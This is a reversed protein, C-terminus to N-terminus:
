RIPVAGAIYPKMMRLAVASLLGRMQALKSTDFKYQLGTGSVRVEGVGHEQHETITKYESSTGYHELLALAEECTADKVVQPYIAEDDYDAIRGRIYRPFQLDQDPDYKRGVLQLSDIHATAMKRAIDRTAQEAGTWPTSGLRAAFYADAEEDTVYEAM